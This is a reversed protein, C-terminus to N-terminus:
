RYRLLRLCLDRRQRTHDKYTTARKAAMHMCNYSFVFYCGLLVGNHAALCGALVGFDLGELVMKRRIHVNHGAM